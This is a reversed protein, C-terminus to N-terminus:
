SREPAAPLPKSALNRPWNFRPGKPFRMEPATPPIAPPWTRPEIKPVPAAAAAVPPSREEIRVCITPPPMPPGIKVAITASRRFALVPRLVAQYGGRPGLLGARSRFCTGGPDTVSRLALARIQSPNLRHASVLGPLSHCLGSGGSVARHSGCAILYVCNELWASRGAARRM